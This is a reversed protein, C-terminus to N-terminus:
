QYRLAYDRVGQYCLGTEDCPSIVVTYSGAAFSRSFARDSSLLLQKRHDYILVFFAQPGGQTQGTFSVSGALAVRYSDQDFPEDFQGSFTAGLASDAAELPKDLNFLNFRDVLVRYEVSRRDGGPMSINNVTVTYSTDYEWGDVMWSLFNALGFGRMDRHVSHVALAKGGQREVVSVTATSFFDFNGPVGAPPVM